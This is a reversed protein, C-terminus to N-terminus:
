CIERRQMWRPSWRSGPLLLLLCCPDRQCTPMEQLQSPPEKLLSGAMERHMLYPPGPASHPQSSPLFPVVHSSFLWSLFTSTLALFGPSSPNSSHSGSGALFTLDLFSLFASLLSFLSAPLLLLLIITYNLSQHM